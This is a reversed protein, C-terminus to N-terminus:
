NNPSSSEKLMYKQIISMMHAIVVAIGIPVLAEPELRVTGAAIIILAIPAKLFAGPVAALMAGVCLAIPIGPFLSHVLLGATGGLFIAPFVIGGLFGSSQSLAIAIMKSVLIAALLGAGMSESIELAMGLQSSGATATLPLAFSILGVLAGGGAGLVYPNAILEATASVLKSILTHLVLVFVAAVGLLAGIILDIIHLQYEPLRYSGLMSSGTVGYYIVFGLTAAFLEPILAAVYNNKATPSLESVLVTAFLPASYGGGMGGAMGTLAFGQRAKEEEFEKGLRTVLWSGFGGGMIALGFSPGLSAGMMLSVTSIIAWYFAKAPDVWAQQALAIAGPVDKSIKWSQRLWAVVLGGLATLPIWWWHGAWWGTGTNGFLLDTTTGTIGMFIVALLGGAIGIVPAFMILKQYWPKEFPVMEL